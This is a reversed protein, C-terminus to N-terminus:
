VLKEMKGDKLFITTEAQTVIRGEEENLMPYAHIAKKQLLERLAVKRAFESLKLKESVWREAFPLERYEKQVFELIKRANTNRVPIAKDLGFIEAQVSERVFGRGNTAFPEIAYAKGDELKRDDHRSINPIPPAAHAIYEELGHGTLNQVPNFGAKKITREIEEGIKGVTAGVKVVSLANELAQEAAEVMKGHEGSFDITVASDAIFGDVHVGVDIKLVDNEKVTREDNESPTFHAACNNASLNVPFAPKGSNEEIFAEISEALELMKKGPRALKKAEKKAQQLIKGAKVYKKYEESDM